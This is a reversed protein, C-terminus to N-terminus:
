PKHEFEKVRKKLSNICAEEEFKDAYGKLESLFKSVEDWELFDEMSRTIKPHATEEIEEGILLEEYLKEGPRLGITKIEIDGNENNGDRITAGYSIIMAKALDYIKIPEGMDLLFIDGGKSLSATQIVLNAAEEINMFYRTVSKHTLTVPGGSEIQKQFLPVVSGSSGLVNGFRVCSYITNTKTSAIGQIILECVRKTAGMINTPRVAKDTSILIFNKLGIEESFQVLSWTGFINNTISQVINREVIPVHKTAAAHFITSIEHQLHIKRLLAGNVIDGLIFFVELGEPIQGIEEELKYLAYESIDLFILKNPRLEKLQRSIESGITGGAGTILINQGEVGEKLLIEDPKVPKRGLFEQFSVPSIHSIIRKGSVLDELAPVTRIRLNFVSLKKLIESRREDSLSPIVLAIEDVKHRLLASHLDNISFVNKGQVRRGQIDEKDDIFFVSDYDKSNELLLDLQKGAAGAGYIAIRLKEESSAIDLKALIRTFILGFSISLFLLIKYGVNLDIGISSVSIFIISGIILKSFLIATKTIESLVDKYVGSVLFFISTLISALFIVKFNMKVSFPLAEIFVWGIFLILFVDFISIIFIKQKSPIRRLITFIKGYLNKM